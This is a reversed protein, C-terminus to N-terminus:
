PLPGGPPPPARGGPPPPAGGAPGVWAGGSRGVLAFEGGGAGAVADALADVLSEAGAPLPGGAFGPLPVATVDRMAELAAAFRAYEDVGTFALASPLCVLSPPVFGTTLAVPAAEPRDTLAGLRAATALLDLGDATRDADIAKRLLTEVPGVDRNATGRLRGYLHNVLQAPTPFDFVATASLRLGTAANLRNRLEIGTLSDVGHDRFAQQPDATLPTTHGLVAASHANVVELLLARQEPEALGALRGLLDAPTVAPAQARRQRGHGRLLPTRAAAPDLHAPVLVPSGTALGVDLLALARDTPLAVLGARALRLRDAETLHGTIGSERAWQGWALSVAPLGLAHRHRALADLFANAAAYNAQGPSGLVGAASSFLVFADLDRTLEHLHWAADAKPRLVADVQEPTLSEVVADAVTGATHVVVRLDDITALLGALADRDAVDCAAATVTAGLGALEAVLEDAGPTAPGRRGVLVVHRVGHETVLHRATLGGLVGFGGTILATGRLPQPTADQATKTLRAALLAGDRLLVQPEAQAFAARVAAPLAQRSADTGDHDVLLFRDPHEAQASRVLGWAAASALDTGTASRTVFVLRTDDALARRVDHLVQRTLAHAQEVPNGGGPALERVEATVDPADPTPLPTWDLTFLSDPHRTATLGGLEVPRLVLSDIDAVPGGTTDTVRVAYTDPATPTLVVRLTAAAGTISVGAFSFPLRALGQGPGDVEATIGTLLTLPQIAADLLAPHVGYGTLGSADAPFAVEAHLEDGHRWIARLGQFTPGYDYGADALTEYLTTTDMPTAGAPPWTTASRTPPTAPGPLLAGTAHRTWDDPDTTTRSHLTVTRRGTDDPAGVAVQVHVTDHLPLPAELVLEALVACGVHGGARLALEVFGTAPLLPANLVTHEALWPHATPSLVGTLVAGQGDPLTVSARLLPHDVVDLGAGTVDARAASVLWYRERQFPYTPLDLHARPAPPRWDAGQEWLRGLAALLREPEDHDRRMAGNPVLTPHPGIELFRTVGNARLWEVADGFRVADR